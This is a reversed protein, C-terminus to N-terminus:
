DDDLHARVTAEHWEVSAVAGGVPVAGYQAHRMGLVNEAQQMM